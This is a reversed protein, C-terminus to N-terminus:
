SASRENPKIKSLLKKFDVFKKKKGWNIEEYNQKFDKSFCNRPSSGKGNM